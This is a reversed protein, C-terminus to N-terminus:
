WSTKKFRSLKLNFHIFVYISQETKQNIIHDFNFCLRAKAMYNFEMLGGNVNVFGTIVM